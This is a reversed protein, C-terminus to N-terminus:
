EEGWESLSLASLCSPLHPSLTTRQTTLVFYYYSCCIVPKRLSFIFLYTGETSPCPFAFALYWIRVADANRPTCKVGM